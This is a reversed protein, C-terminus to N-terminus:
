SKPFSHVIQTINSVRPFNQLEKSPASPTAQDMMRRGVSESGLWLRIRNALKIAVNRLADNLLNGKATFGQSM